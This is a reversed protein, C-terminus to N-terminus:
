EVKSKTSDYMYRQITKVLVQRKKKSVPRSAVQWKQTEVEEERRVATGGRRRRTGERERMAKERGQRQRCMEGERRM